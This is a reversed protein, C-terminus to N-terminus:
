LKEFRQIAYNANNKVQLLYSGKALSSVDVGQGNVTGIMLTKGTNDIVSYETAGMNGKTDIFILTSAPNPYIRFGQKAHDEMGVFTFEQCSYAFCAEGNSVEVCLTNNAQTFVVPTVLDTSFFKGNLYWKAFTENTNEVTSAIYTGTSNDVVFNSDPVTYNVFNKIEISALTDIGRCTFNKIGFMRFEFSGSDRPVTLNLTNSNAILSDNATWYYSDATGIATGTLTVTGTECGVKKSASQIHLELEEDKQVGITLTNSKAIPNIPCLYNSTMEVYYTKSVFQNNIVLSDSNQFRLALGNQYWQYTPNDGEFEENSVKLVVGENPCLTVKPSSIEVLSSQAQLAEFSISRTVNTQNFCGQPIYDVVLNYNGFNLTDLVVQDANSITDGDLMWYFVGTANNGTTDFSMQINGGCYFSTDGVLSGQIDKRTNIKYVITDAGSYVTNCITQNVSMIITDGESLGTFDLSDIKQDIEVGNLKWSYIAEPITDGFTAYLTFDTPDCLPFTVSPTLAVTPVLLQRNTVVISDTSFVTGCADNLLFEVKLENGDTLTNLTISDKNEGAVLVDNVYWLYNDGILPNSLIAKFVNDLGACILSDGDSSVIDTITTSGPERSIVEISDRTVGNESFENFLNATFYQTSNVQTKSSDLNANAFDIPNSWDVSDNFGFKLNWTNLTAAVNVNSSYVNLTWNGTAAIGTFASWSNEPLYNGALAATEDKVNTLSTDQKFCFNYTTNAANVSSGDSLLVKKGTPSQLEFTLDQILSATIDICVKSLNYSSTPNASTVAVTGTYVQAHGELDANAANAFVTSKFPYYSKLYSSDGKCVQLPSASVSDLGIKLVERKASYMATNNAIDNPCAAVDQYIRYASVTSLPKVMISAANNSGSVDTYAALDTSEEWMFASSTTNTFLTISDGSENYELLNSTSELSNVRILIDDFEGNAINGCTLNKATNTAGVRAVTLGNRAFEPVFIESTVDTTSTVVVIVNTAFGGVGMLQHEAEDNFDGDQNWDAWFHIYPAKTTNNNTVESTFAYRSGACLVLSDTLSYNNYGRASVSNFGDAAARSTFNAIAYSNLEFDDGTAATAVTPICHQYIIERTGAPNSNAVVNSSTGGETTHITLVEADVRNANTADAAIDYVLWFYNNGQALKATGTQIGTISFNNGPANVTGGVQTASGFTNTTSYFLKAAAIDGNDDSLGTSFDISSIKYPSACGQTQYNFALIQQNTLSQRVLATTTNVGTANLFSMMTGDCVSIQYDEAEGYTANDCATPVANENVAIRLRIFGNSTAAPITIQVSGTTGANGLNFTEGAEFNGNANFDVFASVRGASGFALTSVNLTFVQGPSADLVLNNFYTYDPSGTTTNHSNNITGITVNSIYTDYTGNAYTPTCNAISQAFTNQVVVTCLILILLLIKKLM